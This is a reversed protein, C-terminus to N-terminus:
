NSIRISIELNGSAANHIVLIYGLQAVSHALEELALQLDAELKHFATRTTGPDQGMPDIFKVDIGELMLRM